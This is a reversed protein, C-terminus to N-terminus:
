NLYIAFGFANGGTLRRLARWNETTLKPGRALYPYAARGHIWGVLDLATPNDFWSAVSIGTDPDLLPHPILLRGDLVALADELISQWVEALEESITIGLAGSQSPNPVWERDNDKELMVKEWFLKNHSFMSRLNNEVNAIHTKDPTRQLTKFLAYISNRTDGFHLQRVRKANLKAKLESDKGPLKAEIARIEQRIFNANRRVLNRDNKPDRLQKQINDVQAQLGEKEAQSITRTKTKKILERRKKELPKRLIDINKISSETSKLKERLKSLRVELKGMDFTYNITPIDTLAAEAEMLDAFVPSPDFALIAEAMASIAHTYAMLWAQDSGDFRIEMVGEPLDDNGRRGLLQALVKTAEEGAELSGSGNIDFWLTKLDIVFATANDPDKQMLTTRANILDASLKSMINRFTEPGRALPQPNVLERNRLGTFMGMGRGIGYRYQNQLLEEIARLSQYTGKEFIGISNSVRQEITPFTADQTSASSSLVLTCAIALILRKFM